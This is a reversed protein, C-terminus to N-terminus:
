STTATKETLDLVLDRMRQAQAEPLVGWASGARERVATAIARVDEVVRDPDLGTSRAFKAWHDITVEQPHARGAIPMALREDYGDWLRTPVADYIPALRIGGPRLLVSYNKAHADANGIVTNFALQRVFDVAVGGTADHRRLLRVIQEASVGYKEDPDRGLAQTLDEAHLRRALGTELRERDFREVVYAQEGAVELMGARPAAIGIDSALTEAAVEAVDLGPHRRAAPKVIHTSPVAANSWYWDGDVDALAFKPQSGALSFRAPESREYWHDTDDHLTRIRFAIADESAPNVEGEEAGPEVGSPLLVLGGAVDGGVAALLDFTDTSAAGTARQMWARAADRDPLLGRLFRGAARRAASGDRPLSLSVPADPADPAYHFSVDGHESRVFEGVFRGELWATLVAPGTGSM